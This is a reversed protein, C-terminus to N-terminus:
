INWGGVGRVRDFRRKGAKEGARTGIGKGMLSYLNSYMYTAYSSRGIDKDIINRRQKERVEERVERGGEGRERDERGCRGREKRCSRGWLGSM